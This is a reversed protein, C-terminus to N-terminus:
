PASFIRRQTEAAGVLLGGNSGGEIALENKDTYKNEILWEAAAIFDDFVNQKKEMMGAHHWAEGFEGGGRLNALAFVGGRDAWTVAQARYEPTSSVDFGGYGTLLTANTGNKALGKKYFLFMPIKTGDKSPYWIQDTVYNASDIPVKPAVWVDLQNKRLDYHYISLPISFSNFEVFIEPSSWHGSVGDISGTAPLALEGSPTGDTDFMKLHSVANQVYRVLLKGGALSVDEISADSEPVIQKWQDRTPRDLDVRYIARTLRMGTPACIHAARSKASSLNDLDNQIPKVPSDSQLDKVYIESRTSGSGYIVQITLYRGDESLDSAVIKDSKYGDGFIIPDSAPDAGM